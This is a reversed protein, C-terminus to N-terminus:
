SSSQRRVLSNCLNQLRRFWLMFQTSNWNKKLRNSIGFKLWADLAWAWCQLLSCLNHLTFINWSWDMNFTTLHISWLKANLFVPIEHRAKINLKFLRLVFTKYAFCQNCTALYLLDYFAGEASHNLHFCLFQCNPNLEQLINFGEATGQSNQTAIM